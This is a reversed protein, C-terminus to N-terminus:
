CVKEVVGGAFAERAVQQQQGSERQRQVRRKQALWHLAVFDIVQVHRGVNKLLRQRREVELENELALHHIRRAM